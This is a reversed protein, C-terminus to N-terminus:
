SRLEAATLEAIALAVQPDQGSNLSWAASLGAYALVWKLLRRRNLKAAESVVSVQQAMRGAATATKFDPNCFINAFDFGREGLLAKPDIALWGRDGFDLVNGHHLDGHLIVTDQPQQLLDISSLLCERLVGGYNLAAASLEDFWCTLPILKPPAKHRVMHLNAAVQCIIRSAQTDDGSRSMEALSKGPTREMLLAVGQCALVPVAGQACWWQMLENGRVEEECRAIKLMAPLAGEHLVPLLYSSDTVLVEGDPELAWRTLYDEIEKEM